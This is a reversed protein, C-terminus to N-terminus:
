GTQLDLGVRFWDLDREREALLRQADALGVEVFQVTDGAKLQAAGPLDVTIVHAIKPYGGITQCDGLLLIPQGNPPVQITGPTVAESVIEAVAAHTSETSDLRAGMRDSEPTVTFARHLFASWREGSDPAEAGKVVRLFRHKANTQTWESPAFWTAFDRGRLKKLIRASRASESGLPVLDGDRLARGCMGGFGSRTDTARSGLVVPVDIGGSIAIWARGGVGHPAVAIEEGGRVVAPRGAPVECGSVEVRFEGGCWAMLRDAETRLRVTGLTVELGAATVDNGVLLNAVSMAHPDLAGGPSVGSARFGPRGLDQVTTLFGARAVTLTM